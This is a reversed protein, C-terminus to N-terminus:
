NNDFDYRDYNEFEKWALEIEKQKETINDQQIIKEEENYTNRLMLFLELPNSLDKINNEEAEKYLKELLNFHRLKATNSEKDLKGFGVGGNKTFVICNYRLDGIDYKNEICYSTETKMYNDVCETFSSSKYGFEKNYEKFFNPTFKILYKNETPMLYVVKEGTTSDNLILYVNSSLKIEDRNIMRVTISGRYKNYNIVMRRIGKCPIRYNEGKQKQIKLYLKKNASIFKIFHDYIEQKEKKFEKLIEDNSMRTTIM